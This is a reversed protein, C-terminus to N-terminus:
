GYRGARKNMWIRLADRFMRASDRAIAVQSERVNAWRVPVEEVRLGLEGAMVLVEVDFAFGDVTLKPFVKEAAQATFGKFGCQTDIFRTLGLLRLGRNFTRGMSERLHAQRIRVESERLSRSGIVIDAGDEFRPWLKELEDIPTSGDADYFVRYAGQALAMGSRVAYGKGRNPRHRHIRVADWAAEAAEATGDTSGDDIILVEWQYRQRELYGRVAHLTQAIRTAENYAPIVLSLHTVAM